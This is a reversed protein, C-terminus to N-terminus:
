LEGEIKIEQERDRGIEKQRKDDSIKQLSLIDYKRLLMDHRFCLEAYM